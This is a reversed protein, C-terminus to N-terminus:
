SLSLPERSGTERSLPVGIGIGIKDARVILQRRQRKVFKAMSLEGALGTLPGFSLWSFAQLRSLVEGPKNVQKNGAFERVVARNSRALAAEDATQGQQRATEM